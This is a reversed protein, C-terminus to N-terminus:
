ARKDVMLFVAVFMLGGIALAFADGMIISAIKFAGIGAGLALFVAFLLWPVDRTRSRKTDAADIEKLGELDESPSLQKENDDATM